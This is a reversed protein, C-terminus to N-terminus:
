TIAVLDIRYLTTWILEHLEACLYPDIGQQKHSRFDCGNSRLLAISEKACLDCDEDFSFNFRPPSRWSPWLPVAVASM